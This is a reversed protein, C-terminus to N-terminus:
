QTFSIFYFNHLLRYKSWCRPKKCNRCIGRAKGVYANRGEWRDHMINKTNGRARGNTQFINYFQIVHSLSLSLSILDILSTILNAVVVSIRVQYYLARVVIGRVIRDGDKSRSRYKPLGNVLITRVCNYYLVSYREYLNVTDFWYCRGMAIREDWRFKFNICMCVYTRAVVMKSFDSPDDLLSINMIFYKDSYQKM